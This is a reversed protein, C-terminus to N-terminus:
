ELVDVPWLDTQAHTKVYLPPASCSPSAQMYDLVLSAQRDYEDVAGLGRGIARGLRAGGRLARYQLSATWYSGGRM